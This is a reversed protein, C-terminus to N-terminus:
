KVFMKGFWYLVGALLMTCPLTFVWALVIKLVTKGQLGSKNAVMTGAVASNLIHTTSVPVKFYSALYITIAAVLEACMGQAYTLHTKGIKEAVTVVIRKYGICTGVGLCLAVGIIVWLPAWETSKRIKDELKAETPILGFFSTDPVKYNGNKALDGQKTIRERLKLRAEPDLETYSKLLELQAIIEQRDTTFKKYREAVHKRATATEEENLNFPKEDAIQTLVKKDGVTRAMKELLIPDSTEFSKYDKDLKEGFTVLATRTQEISNADDINLAYYGGLFGILILMMLGMGKQGDNSGHTFSVAGCTFILIYRIWGPPQDDGVPPEYLRPTRIISKLILLLIAAAGFGILPSFLLGLGVKSAEGWPVASVGKGALLSYALAVGVISGIMTHSSSVPLGFYWTGLNWSVAAILMAVVMVLITGSGPAFVVDQPFLRVIGYAVGVGGFLVGLFNLFGSYLVAPTPKLSRTYIVTTVANATDHFGNIFEFGFALLLALFFFVLTLGPLSFAASWFDMVSGM